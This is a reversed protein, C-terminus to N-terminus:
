YVCRSNVFVGLTHKSYNNVGTLHLGCKALTRPHEMMESCFSFSFDSAKLSGTLVMAPPAPLAPPHDAFCSSAPSLINM